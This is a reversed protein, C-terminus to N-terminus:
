WRTSAGWNHLDSGHSCSCNKRHFCPLERACVAIDDSLKSPFDQARSFEAIQSCGISLLSKSPPSPTSEASIGAERKWAGWPTTPFPFRSVRRKATESRRDGSGPSGAPPVRRGDVAGGWALVRLSPCSLACLRGCGCPVGRGRSRRARPSSPSCAVKGSRARQCATRSSPAEVGGGGVRRASLMLNSACRAM